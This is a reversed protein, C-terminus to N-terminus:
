LLCFSELLYNLRLVIYIDHRHLFVKLVQQILIYIMFPIDLIHQLIQVLTQCRDVFFIVGVWCQLLLEEALNMTNKYIVVDQM